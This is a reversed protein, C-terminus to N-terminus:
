GERELSTGEHVRCAIASAGAARMRDVMDGIGIGPSLEAAFTVRMLDDSNLSELSVIRSGEELIHRLAQVSVGPNLTAQIEWVHSVRRPLRYELQAVITLTGLIVATGLTGITYLGAGAAMGVSASAWLGAATTLGKISGSEKLIAGAGIFGIGTVVQAAIRDTNTPGPNFAYGSVLTFLAAGVGVLIHTRLGAAKGTLYRQLGISGCFLLTALLRLLVDYWAIM